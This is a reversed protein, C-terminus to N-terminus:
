RRPVAATLAQDLDWWLDEIYECGVSLRLLSPPTDRELPWRARRDILTEVGGLSTGHVILQTAACVADAQEAGGDVEFSLLTGGAEGRFALDRATGSAALRPYQVRQVAPHRELRRALEAASASAHQVRLHLTRLGRLALFAEMSGPTAGNLTRRQRLHDTREQDRVVAVGMLLDSHGGLLKTVSHVSLDAGQVLPRQLLPTAFTNDVAVRVGLVHAEKTLVGLDAVKM